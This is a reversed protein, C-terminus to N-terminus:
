VSPPTRRVYTPGSRTAESKRRIDRETYERVVELGRQKALERLDLLQTEPNQEGSSVRCYLASKKM